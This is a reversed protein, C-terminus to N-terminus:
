QPKSTATRKLLLLGTAADRDLLRAQGDKVLSTDWTLYPGHCQALWEAPSMRRYAYDFLYFANLHYRESQILTPEDPLKPDVGVCTGRPVDHRIVAALPSPTSFTALLWDHWMTQKYFGLPFAAILLAIALRRGALAVAAVAVAGFLMWVFFGANPALYQPWFATTNLINPPDHPPTMVHLLLGAAALFVSLAALKRDPKFVAVGIALVPLMAGDVYRGYIWFDGEFHPWQFFSVAGLAMLGPPAAAILAYVSRTQTGANEADARPVARRVCYLTGVVALGFTAVIFYACQGFLVTAFAAFGRMTLATRLASALSPYHSHPMYGTPTMAAAIAPHVGAQYAAVLLGAVLVHLVLPAPDRRRWAGLSVAIVSAVVVAAGTPHVWYLCGTLASHPLISWASRTSWAFLALLCALYIAVFASTALAYGSSIIWTPYLATVLTAALLRNPPVDPMLRRLLVQLMAFSAAWLAANITLVGKWVADPSGLFFAPAILLSYGAHYSSAADLRHGAFLAANALYGIEDELYAPGTTHWASILYVVAIAIATFCIRGNASMAGARSTGGAIFTSV